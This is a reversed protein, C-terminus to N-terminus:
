EARPNVARRIEPDSLFQVDKTFHDKLASAFRDKCNEAFFRSRCWVIVSDLKEEIIADRMWMAWGWPSVAPNYRITVGLAIVEESMTTDCKHTRGWRDSKVGTVGQLELQTVTNKLITEFNSAM